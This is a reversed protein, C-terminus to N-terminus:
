TSADTMTKRCIPCRWLGTAFVFSGNFTCQRYATRGFTLLDEMSRAGHREDYCHAHEAQLYARVAECGGLEHTTRAVRLITRVFAM